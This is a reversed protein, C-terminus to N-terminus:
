NNPYSLWSTSTTDFPYDIILRDTDFDLNKFDFGSTKIRSIIKEGYGPLAYCIVVAKIFGIPVGTNEDLTTMWRPWLRDDVMIASGNDLAISEIQHQMNSVSISDAPATNGSMQNDIIDIYVLEYVINGQTDKAPISKIDGFYFRKRKFTRLMAQAIKAVDVKQLGIEIPM